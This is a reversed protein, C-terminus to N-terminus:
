RETKTKEGISRSRISNTRESYLNFVLLNRDEQGNYLIIPRDM